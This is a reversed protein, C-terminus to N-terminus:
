FLIVYVDLNDLDTAAMKKNLSVQFTKAAKDPNSNLLKTSMQLELAM